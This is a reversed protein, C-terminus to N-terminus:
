STKTEVPIGEISSGLQSALSSDVQIKNFSNVRNAAKLFYELDTKANASFNGKLVLTAGQVQKGDKDKIYINSFEVPGFNLRKQFQGDFKDLEVTYTKSGSTSSNSDIGFSIDRFKLFFNAKEPEGTDTKWTSIQDNFDKNAEDFKIGSFTKIETKSFDLNPPYGGRGGFVGQFVRQNIKSGFAIKLGENIKDTSGLEKTWSLTDFRISGPLKAKDNYLNISAKDVFDWKIFDVNKLGNPNIAWTGTEKQANSYLSLETLKHNELKSLAELGKNDEVFLRLSTISAPLKSIIQEITSTYDGKVNQLVVEKLDSHSKALTELISEFKSLAAPDSSDLYLSKFQRIDNKGANNGADKNYQILRIARSGDPIGASKLASNFSEDKVHSSPNNLGGSWGPRSLSSLVTSDQNPWPSDYPAIGNANDAKIAAKVPNFIPEWGDTDKDPTYGKDFLGIEESTLRGSEFRAKRESHYKLDYEQRELEYKKKNIQANYSDNWVKLRDEYDKTGVEKSGSWYVSLHKQNQQRQLEQIEATIREINSNATTVNTSARFILNQIGQAYKGNPDVQQYSAAPTPAPPTFTPTVPRAQVRPPTVTQITRVRQVPRPTPPAITRIPTVIPSIPRPKAKPTTQPAPNDIKKVTPSEVTEVPKPVVIKPGPSPIPAEPLNQKKPPNIFNTNAVPSFNVDNPTNKLVTSPTSTSYSVELPDFISGSFVSPIYAASAVSLGLLSVAIIKKRKSLYLVM